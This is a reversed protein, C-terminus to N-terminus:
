FRFTPGISLYPYQTLRRCDGFIGRGSSSDCWPSHWVHYGAEVVLRVARRPGFGVDLGLGALGHFMVGTALNLTAEVSLPLYLWADDGVRVGPAAGLSLTPALFLDLALGADLGVRMDEEDLVYYRAAGKASIPAVGFERDQLRLERVDRGYFYPIMSLEAWATLWPRGDGLAASRAPDMWMLGSSIVVGAPGGPAGVLAANFEVDQELDLTPAVTKGSNHSGPAISVCAWLVFYAAGWLTVLRAAAQSAWPTLPLHRM